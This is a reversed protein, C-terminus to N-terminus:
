SLAVYLYGNKHLESVDPSTLEFAISVSNSTKIIKLASVGEVLESKYGNIDKSFLAYIAQHKANMRGTDAIYYSEIELKNIEANAQFLKDLPMLTEIRQTGSPMLFVNKVQFLEATVCDSIILKDGAQVSFNSSLYLTSDDRMPQLLVNNKISAHWIRIADSGSKSETNHYILIKNNQNLLYSSNNKFPFDDTLKACGFYGAMQIPQKLIQRLIQTNEQISILATRSHKNNEAILYIEFLSVMMFLSLVLALMMEIMTM